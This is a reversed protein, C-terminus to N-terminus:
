EHEDQVAQADSPHQAVDLLLVDVGNRDRASLLAFRGSEDVLKELLLVDYLKNKVLRPQDTLREHM